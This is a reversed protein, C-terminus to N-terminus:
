RPAPRSRARAALRRVAHPLLVPQRRLPVARSGALVMGATKAPASVERIDDCPGSSACSRGRGARRRAPDVIGDFMPEFADLQWAVASARGPLRAFMAVGGLYPTPVTHVRREDPMAVIGCRLAVGASCRLSCSMDYRLGRRLRGAYSTRSPMLVSTTPWRDQAREARCRPDPASRPVAPVQLLPRRRGDRVAAIARRRRRPPAARPPDPPSRAGDGAGAHGPTTVAPTGIRLGSTIYPPRPDDPVTNENLSIGARDLVLRAKKGSLDADFSRLDVLMLHNDTGGSVLRLGHSPSRRPWPTRRQARDPRRVGQVRAAAAERFAVAKAAIVHDLPGGQLGPFVAKDIPRARARGASSAAAVPVACRRTPPSPSSTPTRAGPQPPRRRRHARRRPGRRVHLLAGVEDAIERFPEPDIIRPYATAGAVILKPGTSRARSRAGPRLRHARRTPTVGYSVFHYLRGSANVPSGHTLHGGQDLRMGLVTDGPSSCRWTSPWTPTPARTPSCTPTSPASSRRRGSAPGAGRGRRHGRQRRLVAQGSLGRLVQQHAGLRHSGAGRALHLEGLRHAPAHHEAARLERTSSRSCSPTRDDPWNSM